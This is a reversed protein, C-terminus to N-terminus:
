QKPTADPIGAVGKLADIAGSPLSFSLSVTNNGTDNSLSVTKLLAALEPKSAAQMNALAIFGAAVQQLNTAAQQDRAQLSLTANVGGNVHGGASFWTVQPLQGTMETPLHAQKSLVDFRGVVWANNGGEVSEIMKMVEGNTVVASAAGAQVDLVKKLAATAGMAVVGPEIFTIGMEQAAADDSAPHVFMKKGRYEQEVGGKSRIFTEIRGQDFHGRALIYGNPKETGGAPPALACAIVYDIDTEIDIGVAEKIEERGKQREAPELSRMQQRFQSAMLEKVDAYAVVAADSPVFHLENPVAPEAFGPIGGYYAALGVTLGIALFGVSGLMFYRTRKTM